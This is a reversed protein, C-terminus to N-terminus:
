QEQFKYTIYIFYTALILPMSGITYLIIKYDLHFYDIISICLFFIVIGLFYYNLYKIKLKETSDVLILLVIASLPQTVGLLIPGLMLFGMLYNADNGEIFAMLIVFLYGLYITLNIHYIIKM